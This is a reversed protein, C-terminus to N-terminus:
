DEDLFAEYGCAAYGAMDTFNDRKPQAVNRAVKTLVQFDAVDVATIREGPILKHRIRTTWLEGINSFNQTPSGYTVNRDGTILHEAERLVDGRPTEKMPSDEPNPYLPTFEEKGEVPVDAGVKGEDFVFRTIRNGNLEFYKADVKGEYNGNYMSHWENEAVKVYESNPLSRHAIVTGIPTEFFDSLNTFTRGVYWPTM